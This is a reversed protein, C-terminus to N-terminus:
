DQKDSHLSPLSQLFVAGRMRRVNNEKGCSARPSSFPSDYKLTKEHRIELVPVFMSILIM